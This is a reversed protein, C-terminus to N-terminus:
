YWCLVMESYPLPEESVELAGGVEFQRKIALAIVASSVQTVTCLAETLISYVLTDYIV